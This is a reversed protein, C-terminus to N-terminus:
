EDLGGVIEAGPLLWRFTISLRVGRTILDASRKDVGDALDVAPSADDSGVLDVARKEIGHTWKYRAEESLVLISREPLYLDHMRRGEGGSNQAGACSQEEREFRMVCGSGLSVGIIGDGFRKLLDVHASIGEGPHYLNVIAQRARPAPTDLPPFLLTYTDPPLIPRLLQSLTSLLTVLFSPLGNSSSPADVRGFLMVQNVGDKCFFASMCQTLISHALEPPLLVASDFFLGPIHPATRSATVLRSQSIPVPLVPEDFLSDRDSEDIDADEDASFLPSSNSDATAAPPPPLDTVIRLLAQKGKSRNIDPKKQAYENASDDDNESGGRKRKNSVPCSLPM